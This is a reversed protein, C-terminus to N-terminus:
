QVLIHNKPTTFSVFCVFIFAVQSYIQQPETEKVHKIEMEKQIKINGLFRDESM